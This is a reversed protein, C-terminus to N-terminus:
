FDSHLTIIKRGDLHLQHLRRKLSEISDVTDILVPEKRKQYSIFNYYGKKIFVSTTDAPFGNIMAIGAIAPVIFSSQWSGAWRYYVSDTRPIHILYKSKTFIPLQNLSDLKKIFIFKPNQEIKDQIFRYSQSVKVNTGTIAYRTSLNKYVDYHIHHLTTSLFGIAFTSIFLLIFSFSLYSFRFLIKKSLFPTTALVMVISAQRPVDSFYNGSNGNIIMLNGPLLAILGIILILEIDIAVRKIISELLNFKIQQTDLEFSRILLFLIVVAFYIPIFYHRIKPETFRNIYDFLGYEIIVESSVTRHVFFLIFLFVSWMLLNSISFFCYNRFQLYAIAIILLFGVSLKMTYIALTLLAVICSFFFRKNSAEFFAYDHLISFSVFLFILSLLYSQSNFNSRDIGFKYAYEIPLFGIVLIMFLLWFIKGSWEELQINFSQYLYIGRKLAAQLMWYYFLVIFIIPYFINYIEIMSIDFIISLKAFVWHSGYHYPTITLGDIGTSVVGYTKIMQAISMNHILDVQVTNCALEERFLPTVYGAHYYVTSVCWITFFIAVIIFYILYKFTFNIWTRYTVYLMMLWGTGVISYGAAFRLYEPLFSLICVIVFATLFIYSVQLFLSKRSILQPVVGLSCFFFSLGASCFYERIPLTFGIRATINFVLFGVALVYCFVSVLLQNRINNQEKM